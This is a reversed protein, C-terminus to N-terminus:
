WKGGIARLSRVGRKDTRFTALGEVGDADAIYLKLRNKAREAVLKAREFRTHARVVARGLADSTEDAPLLVGNNKPYLKTIVNHEVDVVVEGKVMHREWWQNAIEILRAQLAPNAEVSYERLKWNENGLLVVFRWRQAGTLAMFWQGQVVLRLPMQDTGEEGFEFRSAYNMSAKCDLGWVGSCNIADPTCGLWPYDPHFITEVEGEGFRWDSRKEEPHEILWREFIPREMARGWWLPGENPDSEPLLGRKRGWLTSESEYTPFTDRGARANAASVIVAIDHSGIYSSRPRKTDM